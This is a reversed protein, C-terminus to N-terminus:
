LNKLEVVIAFPMVNTIRKPVQLCKYDIRSKLFWRKMKYMADALDFM